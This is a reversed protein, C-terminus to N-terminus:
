TDEAEAGDPVDDSDDLRGVRRTERLVGRAKKLQEPVESTIVVGFDIGFILLM